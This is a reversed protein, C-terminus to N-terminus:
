IGSVLAIGTQSSANYQMFPIALTMVKAYFASMDDSRWERNTIPMTEQLQVVNSSMQVMLMSGAAAGVANNPDIMKIAAIQEKMNELILTMQTTDSPSSRVAKLNYYDTPHLYIVFPGRFRRLELAALTAKITNYANDGSTWVGTSLSSTSTSLAGTANNYGKVANGNLTVATTGNFLIGELTESVARAAETAEATDLPLMLRRSAELEREDINYATSIVPLPVSITTRDVRDNNVRTRTSMTVDAAHRESQVRKDVQMVGISGISRVLGYTRLDQIGILITRQALSVETDLLTWERSDLRSNGVISGGSNVLFAQGTEPDFMPEFSNGILGSYGKDTSNVIEAQM